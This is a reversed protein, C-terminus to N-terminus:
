SGAQHRKFRSWSGTTMLVTLVIAAGAAIVPLMVVHGALHWAEFTKFYNVGILMATPLFMLVRAMAAGSFVTLHMAPLLIALAGIVLATFPNRCWSSILVITATLYLVGLLSMATVALYSTEFTFAYPSPNVAWNQVFSRAGEAGFLSFILGMNFLQMFLWFSVAILFATTLKARILMTKGYKASLLLSDTKRVYEVSFLPALTILLFVGVTFPLITQIAHLRSWGWNYDYWAKYSTSLYGYMAEAKAALAEGKRGSNQARFQRALEKGTRAAYASFGSAVLPDELSQFKRSNLVDPRVFRVINEPANVAELSLGEAMLEETIKRREETSVQNAPDHLIASSTDNVRKIWADNIMGAYAREDQRVQMVKARSYPLCNTPEGDFTGFVAILVDIVLVAVLAALVSRRRLSKRLEYHLLENM